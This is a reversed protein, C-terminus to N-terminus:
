VSFTSISFHDAPSVLLDVWRWLCPQYLSYSLPSASLILCKSRVSLSALSQHVSSSMSHLFKKLLADFANIYNNTQHQRVGACESICFLRCANNYSLQPSGTMQTGFAARRFMLFARMLIKRVWTLVGCRILVFSWSWCVPPSLLDLFTERARPFLKRARTEKPRHLYFKM